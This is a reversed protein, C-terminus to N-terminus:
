ILCEQNSLINQHRNLGKWMIVSRQCDLQTSQQKHGSQVYNNFDASINEMTTHHITPQM